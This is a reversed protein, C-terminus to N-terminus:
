WRPHHHDPYYADSTAIRADTRGRRCYDGRADAVGDADGAGFRREIKLNRGDIWGLASLGDRLATRIIQSEKSEDYGDLWGVLRVRGNPQARVLLPWAAAAGGGLAGVFDRRRM